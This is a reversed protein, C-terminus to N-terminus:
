GKKSFICKPYIIQIWLFPVNTAAIYSIAEFIVLFHIAKRFDYVNQEKERDRSRGYNEPSKETVNLVEWFIKLRNKFRQGGM